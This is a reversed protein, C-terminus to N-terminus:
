RRVHHFEAADDTPIFRYPETWTSFYSADPLEDLALGLYRRGMLRAIGIPTTSAPLPDIEGPFAYAAFIAMRETLDSEEASDWQLNSGPGHDGHLVIVPAPGSTRGMKEVLATLRGIVYRAQERYGEIYEARSGDFHDGDRFSFPRPPRRPQGARDLVFPPHPAVVHAFVLKRQPSEALTELADFAQVIKGRHADYSRRAIPSSALPTSVLAEHELETPGVRDCICIDAAEIRRTAAYTSGIAYVQYGTRRAATMMANRDIMADLPRRDGSTPGMVGALEDLYGFNLTSAISLFTQSYNSRAATPVHFGRARLATVFDTLDLAYHSQLVDSRGFGDLVIYYVDREPTRVEQRSLVTDRQADITPEWSRESALVGKWVASHLNIGLLLVLAANLVLPSRQRRQWPRVLATAFLAVIACFVLATVLNDAALTRGAALGALLLAPQYFACILLAIAAWAARAELKWPLLALLVLLATAVGFAMAFARAIASVDLPVVGANISVLFVVPYAAFGFVPLCVLLRSASAKM